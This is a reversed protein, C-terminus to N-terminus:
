RRRRRRILAAALAILAIGALGEIVFLMTNTDDGTRVGGTTTTGYSASYGSSYGSSGSPGANAPTQNTNSTQASKKKNVVKLVGDKIADDKVGEVKM